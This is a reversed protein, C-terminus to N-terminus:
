RTADYSGIWREAKAHAVPDIEWGVSDRGEARAAILTSGSGATLDAVLEGPRSFARVCWRLLSVPKQCAHIRIPRDNPVVDVDLVSTAYRRTTGANTKIVTERGYLESKSCRTAAHMPAHGDTFQPVYRSEGQATDGFVLIHEHARLPARKANLHGSARNKRWVLDYAFRRPAIPGIEMALRMSAFVLAVGDPALAHDIAAWWDPWNPVRDWEARTVGWPPDTLVLAVSGREVSRLGAVGDGLHLVAKAEVRM